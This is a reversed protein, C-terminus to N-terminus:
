ASITMTKGPALQVLCDEGPAVASITSEAIFDVIYHRYRFHKVTKFLPNLHAQERDSFDGTTFIVCQGEDININSLDIIVLILHLTLRVWLLIFSLILLIAIM